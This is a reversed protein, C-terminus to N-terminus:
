IAPDVLRVTQRKPFLDKMVEARGGQSAWSRVTADFGSHGPHFNGDRWREFFDPLRNAIVAVVLPQLFQHFRDFQSFFGDLLYRGILADM